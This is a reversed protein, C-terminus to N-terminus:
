HPQRIRDVMDQTVRKIQADTRLNKCLAELDTGEPAQYFTTMM